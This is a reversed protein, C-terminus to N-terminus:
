KGRRYLIVTTLSDIVFILIFAGFVFLPIVSVNISISRYGMYYTWGWTGIIGFVYFCWFIGFGCWRAMKQIKLDREDMDPGYLFVHALNQEEPMFKSEKQKQLYLYFIFAIMTFISVYLFVILVIIQDSITGAIKM